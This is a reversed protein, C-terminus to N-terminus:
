GSFPVPGAVSITTWTKGTKRTTQFSFFLSSIKALFSFADSQMYRTTTSPTINSTELSNWAGGRLAKSLRGRRKGRKKKWLRNLGTCISLFVFRMHVCNTKNIKYWINGERTHYRSTGLCKPISCWNPGLGTKWRNCLLLDIQYQKWKNWILARSTNRLMFWKTKTLLNLSLLLHVRNGKLTGHTYKKRFILDGLRELLRLIISKKKAFSYCSFRTVQGRLSPFFSALPSLFLTVETGPLPSSALLTRKRLIREWM